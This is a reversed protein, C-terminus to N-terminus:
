KVKASYYASSFARFRYKKNIEQIRKQRNKEAIDPDVYEERLVQKQWSNWNKKSM